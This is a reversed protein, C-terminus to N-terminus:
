SVRAKKKERLGKKEEREERIEENESKKAVFFKMVLLSILISAIIGLYTIKTITEAGAIPYEPLLLLPALAAPAIGKPSVLSIKIKEMISYGSKALLMMVTIIRAAFLAFVITLIEANTFVLADFKFEAGLFFFVLITFLFALEQNFETLEYKQPINSSTLLVSCIAVALIGSGFFNEAIVYASMAIMLGVIEEHKSKSYRLLKQGLWACLFGVAIGILILVFLKPINLWALEKAKIYDLLLLPLIVTFPANFLSEARLLTFIKTSKKPIASSIAAPDTGCLLVGLFAASIIPIPLLWITTGAIILSTILVGITSLMIINFSHKKIEELRLYFGSSFVVIILALTRVLEPLPSLNELKIISYTSLLTGALIFLVIAPFSTKEAVAKLSIGIVLILAIQTLIELM